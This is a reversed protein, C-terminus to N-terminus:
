SIYIGILFTPRLVNKSFCILVSLIYIVSIFSGVFSSCLDLYKYILDIKKQNDDINKRSIEVIKSNVEKNNDADKTIIFSETAGIMSKLYEKYEEVNFEITLDVNKVLLNYINQINIDIKKLNILLTTDRLKDINQVQYLLDVLDDFTMKISKIANIITEDISTYTQIHDSMSIIYNKLDNFKSVNNRLNYYNLTYHGKNVVYENFYEVQKTAEEFAVTEDKVIKKRNKLIIDIIDREDTAKQNEFKNNYMTFHMANLGRLERQSVVYRLINDIYKNKCIYYNKNPEDLLINEDVFTSDCQCRIEEPDIFSLFSEYCGLSEMNFSASVFWVFDANIKVALINSISDIEDFFVRSVKMDLSNLTTAVIHYYSSTILIIDNNKLIDPKIYLSMINEYEVFKVFTLKTSFRVISTIWQTYINQPVVIINTKNSELNQYILSLITYTKGSGPKDSMIGYRNNSINEIDICRQLMALQHDKLNINIDTPHTALPSASTLLKSM